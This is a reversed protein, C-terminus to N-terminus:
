MGFKNCASPNFSAIKNEERNSKVMVQSTCSAPNSGSLGKGRTGKLDVFSTVMIHPADLRCSERQKVCLPQGFQVEFVLSLMNRSIPAADEKKDVRAKNADVM